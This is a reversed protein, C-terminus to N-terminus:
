QAGTRVSVTIEGDGKYLIRFIQAAARLWNAQDDIGWQEGKAPLEDLLGEIFPNLTRQPPPAAIPARVVEADVTDQARASEGVAANPGIVPAVLRDEAPTPFFGATRASRDFAQRAKDRQKQAVGLSVMAQELGAPRPPLTRGKFSDYLKRYLEVNLFAEAKAARERPPDLIEFGLPTLEIRGSGGTILGFMRAGSLKLSFNGGVSSIGLQAALQDRDLPVGGASHMARAVSIADDLDNYPFAVTSTERAPKGTAQEADSV